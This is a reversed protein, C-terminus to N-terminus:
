APLMAGKFQHRKQSVTTILDAFMKENNRNNFRFSFENLYFPLYKKTVHHYSGM